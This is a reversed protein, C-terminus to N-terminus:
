QQMKIWKNTYFSKQTEKRKEPERKIGVNTNQVNPPARDYMATEPRGAKKIFYRTWSSLGTLESKLSMQWSNILVTESTSQLVRANDLRNAYLPITTKNM